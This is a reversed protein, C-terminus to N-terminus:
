CVKKTTPLKNKFINLFNNFTFQLKEYNNGVAAQMEASSLEWELIVSKAYVNDLINTAQLRQSTTDVVM